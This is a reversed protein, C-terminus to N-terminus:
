RRLLKALWLLASSISFIAFTSASSASNAKESKGCSLLYKSYAVFTFNSAIAFWRLSGADQVPVLDDLPHDLDDDLLDVRINVVRQVADKGWNNVATSSSRCGTVVM